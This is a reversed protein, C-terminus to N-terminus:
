VPMLVLFLEEAVRDNNGVTIEHLGIRLHDQVASCHAVRREEDNTVDKPKDQRRGNMCLAVVCLSRQIRAFARLMSMSTM